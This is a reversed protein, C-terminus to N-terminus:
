LSRSNSPTPPYECYKRMLKNFIMMNTINAMHEYVFVVQRSILDLSYLKKGISFLLQSNYLTFAEISIEDSTNKTEINIEFEDFDSGDLNCSQVQKLDNIWYLRNKEYDM